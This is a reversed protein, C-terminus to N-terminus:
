ASTVATSAASIIFRAFGWWINHGIDPGLHSRPDVHHAHAARRSCMPVQCRGLDRERVKQSLTKSKKLYPKWADLCYRAIAVLCEGDDLHADEVARVARFATSLTLAIGRPLRAILKGSARMQAEEDSELARKLEICTMERARPIWAPIESDLLRSLLRVQEYSLRRELLEDRLAPVDWLRREVAVRQEVTRAGLGLREAAYHTFSSFGLWRWMGSAKVALATHGLTDDWGARM